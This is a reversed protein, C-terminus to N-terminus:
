SFIENYSLRECNLKSYSQGFLEQLYEERIRLKRQKDLENLFRIVEDVTIPRFQINRKLHILKAM